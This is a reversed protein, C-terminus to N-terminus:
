HLLDRLIYSVKRNNESWGYKENTQHFLSTKNKCYFQRTKENNVQDSKHQINQAGTQSQDIPSKQKVEKQLFPISAM